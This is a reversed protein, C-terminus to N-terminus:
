LKEYGKEIDHHLQEWARVVVNMSVADPHEPSEDVGNVLEPAWPFQWLNFTDRVWVGVTRHYMETLKDKPANYFEELDEKPTHCYLMHMVEFVMEKMKEESVM